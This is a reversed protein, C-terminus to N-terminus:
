ANQGQFTRRMKVASGREAKELIKDVLYQKFASKGKKLRLYNEQHEIQKFMNKDKIEQKYTDWEKQNEEKLKDMLKYKENLKYIKQRKEQELQQIKQKKLDRDELNKESKYMM